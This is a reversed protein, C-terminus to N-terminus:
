TGAQASHLAPAPKGVEILAACTWVVPEKRGPPTYTLLGVDIGLQRCFAMFVWAREAWVGEAETAM